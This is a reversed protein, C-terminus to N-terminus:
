NSFLMTGRGGYVKFVNWVTTWVYVNMNPRSNCGNEAAMTFFMEKRPIKDWNAAGRPEYMEEGQKQRTGYGFPWVYVYRDHVAAKTCYMSPLLSRFLSGGELEFREYTNYFLSAGKMPESDESRFAPLLRWQNSQQPTLVADPWWPTLCPSQPARAPVFSRLDRTFLFWANYAEAEPRQFVWMIEKTPNTLALPVRVETAKQTAQVPVENWQEVRYTLETSRLSIAELEELSYFEALMYADAIGFRQPMTIGPILEGKVSSTGMGANMYYVDTTAAPNSQWFRGGQLAPMGGSIDVTPRFGVTNPSMRADTYYLQEVPRFTIHIRVRDVNLADIPLAHSLVGPKSFWFPLPVYVTTAGQWTTPGFGNAARCIMRNKAKLTEVPEYLEDLVELLRSDLTSVVVGGIELEVKQLLAHGLANTWGYHPGLFTKGAALAAAKAAAQHVMIDPMTVAIMVGGLLEGLRPVTVTVRQGFEPAGDFDVRRWQAAWRTTKRLVKVFQAVEPRGRPPQLRADQLGSSIRTLSTAVTAAM